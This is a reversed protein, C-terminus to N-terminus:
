RQEGGETWPHMEEYAQRAADANAEAKVPVSKEIAELTAEIGVMGPLRALAGLIATNVIPATSSGLGNRLAIGSADVTAVRYGPLLKKWKDPSQTSNVLLWGGPELGATVPALKLLILNQDLVVLGDPHYVETREEIQREDIRVFAVVPAGRRESGFSPFAAPFKGETFAATALIESAVVTGQGGRGHFRIELM